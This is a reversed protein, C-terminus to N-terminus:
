HKFKAIAAQLDQAMRALSQSAAAVEEMAALQEQTSDSVAQTQGATNLTLQEIHRVAHVIQQGGDALEQTVSSIERVQATVDGILRAIHGFAQGAAGVADSGAKVETRGSQMIQAANATDAQVQAIISAIQQTARESQEALKRVEEAVVAFGRGTEGARAAEIAANLALLNTQGAISAITEVIQGIERSHSNLKNVVDASQGVVAEAQEMQRVARCITESGDQAALATKEVAESVINANQATHRIGASMEEVIAVTKNVDAAQQDNSGAVDSISSAIQEAARSSEEASASLEQSAGAVTEASLSVQRVLSRLSAAMSNISCALDGIEDQTKITLDPVSLKGAAIQKVNESMAIVPQAVRHGLYWIAPVAGALILLAVLGFKQIFDNQLQDAFEKSVGVYFMGIIVGQNDKIPTYATQYKVGVVEAEGIYTKGQKLVAEAVVASVRTGVARKGDRVVNTTVRTDHLFITVTDGTLSGIKDVIESNDNIRSSGKYLVGEKVQWPGPHSSDLLALGTAIDSQAKQTLATAIQGSMNVVAVSSIGICVAVLIVVVAVILKTQINVRM